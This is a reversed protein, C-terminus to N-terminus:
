HMELERAQTTRSLCSTRRRASQRNHEPVPPPSELTFNNSCNQLFLKANCLILVQNSTIQWANRGVTSHSIIRNPMREKGKRRQKLLRRGSTNRGSGANKRRTTVGAVGIVIEMSNCRQIFLPRCRTRNEVMNRANKQIPTAKWSQPKAM